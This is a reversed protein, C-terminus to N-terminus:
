IYSESLPVRCNAKGIGTCRMEEIGCQQLEATAIILNNLACDNIGYDSILLM